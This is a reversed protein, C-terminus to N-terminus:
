PNAPSYILIVVTLVITIYISFKAYDILALSVKKKELESVKRGEFYIRGVYTLIILISSALFIEPIFYLIETTINVPDEVLIETKKEVKIISFISDYDAKM